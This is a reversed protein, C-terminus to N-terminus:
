AHKISQQTKNHNTFYHNVTDMYKLTAEAANHIFWWFDLTLCAKTPLSITSWESTTPADGTPKLPNLLKLQMVLCSVNLNQSNTDSVNSTQYYCFWM